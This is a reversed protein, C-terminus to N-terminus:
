YASDTAGTLQGAVGLSTAEKSEVKAPDNSIGGNTIKKKKLNALLINDSDLIVPSGIRKCTTIGEVAQIATDAERGTGLKDKGDEKAM